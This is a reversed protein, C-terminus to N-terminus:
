SNRKRLADYGLAPGRALLLLYELLMVKAHKSSCVKLMYDESATSSIIKCFLSLAQSDLKFPRLAKAAPKSITSYTNGESCWREIMYCITVFVRIM